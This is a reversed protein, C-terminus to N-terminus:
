YKEILNYVSDSPIISKKACETIGSLNILIEKGPDQFCSHINKWNGEEKLKSKAYTVIYLYLDNSAKYEWGGEM